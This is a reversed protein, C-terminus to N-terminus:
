LQRMSSPLFLKHLHSTFYDLDDSQIHGSSMVGTLTVNLYCLVLVSSLVSSHIYCTFKEKM